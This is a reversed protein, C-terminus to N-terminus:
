EFYRIKETKQRELLAAQYAARQARIDRINTEDKRRVAEEWQEVERGIRSASYRKTELRREHLATRAQKDRDAVDTSLFSTQYYDCKQPSLSTDSPPHTLWYTSYSYPTMGHRTSRTLPPSQTQTLEVTPEGFTSFMNMRNRELQDLRGDVTKIPAKMEMQHVTGQQYSRDPIMQKNIPCHFMVQGFTHHPAPEPMARTRAQRRAFPLADM